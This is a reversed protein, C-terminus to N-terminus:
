RRRLCGERCGAVLASEVLPLESIIGLTWSGTAPDYLESPAGFGDGGTVLVNRNPLLSATHTVRPLHM